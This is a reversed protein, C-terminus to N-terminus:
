QAVTMGNPMKYVVPDKISLVPAPGAKPQKSRDLTTQAQAAQLLLAGAAIM